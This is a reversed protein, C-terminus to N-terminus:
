LALDATRACLDVTTIRDTFGLSHNIRRMHENTSNTETEVIEIGTLRRLLHAKVLRGIGKGRHAPLVGTYRQHGISPRSLTRHVVTVGAAEDGYLALVVWVDVGAASLTDEEQRVREPTYTTLEIASDGMPQDKTTNLADAYADLLAEPARGTWHALRYGAPVEGPEPLPGTLVLDQLTLSSVVAFGRATAWREGEGGRPVWSAEATDRDALRVAHRLLATGIGKGRRREDVVVEGTVLHANDGTPLYGRAYGVVRGRERAVLFRSRGWGIEPTRQRRVWGSFEPLERSPLATTWWAVQLDFLARQDAEAADAIDLEEIDIEGMGVM